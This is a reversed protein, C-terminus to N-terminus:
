GIWRLIADCVANDSEGGLAFSAMPDLGPAARKYFHQLEPFRAIETPLGSRAAALQDVQEPTVSQDRGGQVLLVRTGVRAVAERPDVADVERLYTLAQPPMAALGALMPNRRADASLARAARIDDVAQDFISLDPTTGPPAMAAAQGRMIDLLRLAPGSLSVVGELSIDPEAALLSAVLAGESHGAVFAPLDPAAARMHSLAARAVVLRQAFRQHVLAQTADITESGTGPGIKAQRMSVIGGRSLQHALDRYLHPRVNWAPYDGDVDSFLSGPLLLICARAAGRPRTIRGPLRVGDVILTADEENM